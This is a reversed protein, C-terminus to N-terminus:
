RGRNENKKGNQDGEESVVDEDRLKFGRKSGVRKIHSDQAKRNEKDAKSQIARAKQKWLGTKRNEISMGVIGECNQDLECLM